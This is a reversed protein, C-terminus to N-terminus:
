TLWKCYSLSDSALHTDLCHAGNVCLSRRATSIYM